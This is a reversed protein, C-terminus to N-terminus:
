GSELELKPRLGLEQQLRQKLGPEREPKPKVEQDRELKPKLGLEQELQDKDLSIQGKEIPIEQNHLKDLVAEARKGLVSKHQAALPLRIRKDDNSDVISSVFVKLRTMLQIGTGDLKKVVNQEDLTEDMMTPDPLIVEPPFDYGPPLESPDLDSM